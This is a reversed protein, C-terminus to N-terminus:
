ALQYEPLLLILHAADRLREAESAASAEDGELFQILKQRSAPSINGDLFLACFFDVKEQATPGAYRAALKTPGDKRFPDQALVFAVNQRGLLSMANIWGEGGSWGFVNPPSYLRQGLGELQRALQAAPVAPPGVRLHHVLGLVFEIPSKVRQRYALESFFLNSRLMIGMLRAIDYDSERFERALPEVLAPPPEESESIFFRFLKLVVFRATQPQELLIRTVDQDGWAGTQGLLTKTEDDHDAEVLQSEGDVVQWGTFARAAAQVDHESFNGHGLTFAEMIERALNENPKGKVNESADLWILMAPDRVIDSLLLGFKGLAHQRLLNNQRQMLRVRGVKGYSTAFHGHWFLTMKELLPHPSHLMRQLWLGELQLTNRYAQEVLGRAQENSDQDFQAVGDGGVLLREVSDECGQEVADELTQWDAGFAARRYLHAAWRLDWPQTRTPKWAQWAERPAVDLLTGPM